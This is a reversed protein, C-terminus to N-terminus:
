NGCFNAPLLSADRPVTTGQPMERSPRPQHFAGFVRPLLPGLCVDYCGKGREEVNNVATARCEFRPDWGLRGLRIRAVQLEMAAHLAALVNTPPPGLDPSQEGVAAEIKELRVM